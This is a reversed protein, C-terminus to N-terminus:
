TDAWGGAQLAAPKIPFAVTTEYLLTFLFHVDLMSCQVDLLSYHIRGISFFVSCLSDVRQFETTRKNKFPYLTADDINSTRHQVNLTRRERSNVTGALRLKIYADGNAQFAALDIM